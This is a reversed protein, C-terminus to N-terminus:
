MFPSAEPPDFGIDLDDFPSTGSDDGELPGEVRVTTDGNVTEDLTTCRDAEALLQRSKALAVAVKRFEHDAREASNAALSEQMTVDAAESVQLLARMATLRGNLCQLEEVNGERRATEVLKTVTKVGNRMEELADASYQLKEQPSTSALRELEGTVGTAGPDQAVAVPTFLALGALLSLVAMPSRLM